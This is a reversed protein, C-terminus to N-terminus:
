PKFGVSSTPPRILTAGLLAGSAGCLPAGLPSM